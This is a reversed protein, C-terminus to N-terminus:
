VMETLGTTKAIERFDKSVDTKLEPLGLKKRVNETFKSVASNRGVTLINQNGEKLSPPAKGNKSIFNTIYCMVDIPKVYQPCRENCKYCTLCYWLFRDDFDIRHEKLRKIYKRVNYDPVLRTVPCGGSCTGCQYCLDLNKLSHDDIIEDTSARFM